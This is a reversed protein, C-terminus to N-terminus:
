DILLSYDIHALELLKKCMDMFVTLERAGTRLEPSWFEYSKIKGDITYELYWNTGDLGTTNDRPDFDELIRIL